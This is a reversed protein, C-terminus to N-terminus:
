RVQSRIWLGRAPGARTDGPPGKTTVQLRLNYAARGRAGVVELHGLMPGLYAWCLGLIPWCLRLSRWCLGWVADVLLSLARFSHAKRHKRPQPNRFSIGPTSM